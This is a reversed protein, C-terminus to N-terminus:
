MLKIGKFKTDDMSKVKVPGIDSQRSMWQRIETSYDANSARNDNYFTGTIFFFGPDMGPNTTNERQEDFDTRQINEFDNSIDTFPGFKCQCYIKDRLETLKQGGLVLFEQSLRPKRKTGENRKYVFPEYVRVTILIEDLPVLDLKQDMDDSKHEIYRYRNYKRPMNSMNTVIDNGFRHQICKLRMAKQPIRITNQAQKTHLKHLEMDFIPIDDPQALNNLSISDELLEEEEMTQVGLLNRVDDHTEPLQDVSSPCLQKRFEAFKEGINILEGCKIQYVNEM